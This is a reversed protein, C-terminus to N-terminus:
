TYTINLDKKTNWSSMINNLTVVIFAFQHLPVYCREFLLLHTLPVINVGSIFFFYSFVEFLFYLTLNVTLSEPTMIMSHPIVVSCSCLIWGYLSMLLVFCFLLLRIASTFFPMSSKSPHQYVCNSIFLNGQFSLNIFYIYIVTFKCSGKCNAVFFGRRLSAIFLYFKVFALIDERKKLFRHIATLFWPKFKFLSGSQSM